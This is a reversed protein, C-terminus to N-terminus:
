QEGRNERCRHCDIYEPPFPAFWVDGCNPCERDAEDDTLVRECLDCAVPHNQAAALDDLERPTFTLLDAVPFRAVFDLCAPATCCLISTPMAHTEIGFAVTPGRQAARAVLAFALDRPIM